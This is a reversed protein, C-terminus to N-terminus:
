EAGGCRVPGDIYRWGRASEVIRNGAALKGGAGCLQQEIGPHSANYLTQAPVGNHMRVYIKSPHIYDDNRGAREAFIEPEPHSMSPVNRMVWRALPSFEIYGYGHAHIMAVGQALMVAVLVGAPWAARVSLRHLFVFLLPMSSWFAYRMIGAAGSNWNLVALAPVALALTFMLAVALVAAARGTGAPNRRWGWFALAALLGPIGIVMGQNLDFFFSHLRVLDVLGPDSYLKAIINPVGFQVLNALPAIAYVAMGAALGLIYRRQMVHAVNARLSRSADWALALHLLPAFGFFFVITPNQLGAVGAAVAGALPAGSTYFALGALLLAASMCEPSSWRFYLAGGCLMFLAVGLLAKQPSGFMRNLALGLVFVAALNVVVFAKFPALGAAELLKFPGAALATYGWFHVAYVQGDLGRAFAPFVKARNERLDQELWNYPGDLWPLLERGRAIDDLRIEPSGHSALGITNLSYEVVDGQISPSTLGTLAALLLALTLPFHWARSFLSM